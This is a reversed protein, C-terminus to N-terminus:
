SSVKTIKKLTKLDYICIGDIGSSDALYLYDGIYLGRATMIELNDPSLSGLEKFGKKTDYSYIRYSVIDSESKDDYSDVSFGILNKEPSVLIAKHNEGAISYSDEELLKTHLEKVETDSSIDFMSLKVRDYDDPDSEDTGIGLLLNKSFAHLYESFGPIKLEDKVVPKKPDSLDVLFVPDTERYTVFYARDGMFRASYIRESKALHDVKGILEMNKDLVYLGNSTSQSRGFLSTSTTTAVFRLNGEYEDMSFQNLITGRFTKEGAAEIQGDTYSFKSIITKSYDQTTPAAIYINKESTYCTSDGGLVALSDTFSKAATVDLSTLVLYTNSYVGGEPVSINEEPILSGGVSPIYVEKKDDENASEVAMNSITYLYKGNMRSHSYSGSQNEKFTLEPSTIDSIDYVLVITKQQGSEADESTRWDTGVLVLTNEYVYMESIDRSDTTLETIKRTSKGAAEFITVVSGFTDASVLYIYKGDTKVIDGEDVGEVQLNTGSYDESSSASDSSPSYASGSKSKPVASGESDSTNETLAYEEYVVDSGYSEHRELYKSITRRATEYQKVDESSVIKESDESGNSAEREITEWSNFNWIGTACLLLLISAATLAIRTVLKKTHKPKPGSPYKALLMKEMNEPTLKEPVPIEESLKKLKDENM